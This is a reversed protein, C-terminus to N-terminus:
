LLVISNAGPDVGAALLDLARRGTLPFRERLSEGHARMLTRNHVSDLLLLVVHEMGADRMKLSIRRELAQLDRPRTEAEVGLAWGGAAAASSVLGDWARRDGPHPMPVETRFRLSPHLRARFRALLAAHGADRLPSGGPVFRLSPELGVAVALAVLHALAVRRVLGREIRSAHSVSIRAAAAVRLPIDRDLRALRIERGLAVEAERALHM